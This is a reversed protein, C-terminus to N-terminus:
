PGSSVGALSPKAVGPEPSGGSTRATDLAVTATRTLSLEIWAELGCGCLEAAQRWLQACSSDVSLRVVTRDLTPPRSATRMKRRLEQRSWRNVAASELWYEQDDDRLACVQAHHQFSLTDRRRSLDFRRAVVAYNRLTQYDL